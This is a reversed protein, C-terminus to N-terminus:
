MNTYGMIWLRINFYIESCAMLIGLLKIKFGRIIPINTCQFNDVWLMIKLLKRKKSYLWYNLFSINSRIEILFSWAFSVCRLFISATTIESIFRELNLREASLKWDGWQLKKPFEKFNHQKLTSYYQSSVQDASWFVPPSLNETQVAQNSGSTAILALCIRVVFNLPPNECFYWYM